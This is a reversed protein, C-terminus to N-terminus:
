ECNNIFETLGVKSNLAQQNYMQLYEELTAVRRLLESYVKVYGPDRWLDGNCPLADVKEIVMSVRELSTTIADIEDNFYSRFEQPSSLKQLLNLRRARLRQWGKDQHFLIGYHNIDNLVVEAKSILSALSLNFDDGIIIKGLTGEGREVHAAINKASGSVDSLNNIIQTIKEPQNLSKSTEELNAITRNSREAVESFNNIFQTIKEPQNISKSTEEFNAITRNLREASNSEALTVTMSDIRRVADNLPEWVKTDNLGAALEKFSNISSGLNEWANQNRLTTLAIIINDLTVEIKDSLSKLEKLTSEVSGGENAYIIQDTILIQPEDKEAPFPLISVSKEGLLGSTRSTIVDGIFVEVGSDIALELQYVYIVGDHEIRKGGEIEEIRVVEGVPKGAFTVRTGPTLKDIDAFRVHLRKGENGINPHLFLLIFIIIAFAAIVFIGIMVNKFQNAM